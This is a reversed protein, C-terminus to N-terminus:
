KTVVNLVEHYEKAQSERSLPHLGQFYKNLKNKYFESESFAIFFDESTDSIISDSSYIHLLKGALTDRSINAIVPRGSGIYEFLKTPLIGQASLSESSSTESFLLYNSEHMRKLSDAYSLAPLFHFNSKINPYNRDLEIELLGAIGYFELQFRSFFSPLEIQLKSLAKLVNHPIRGPSISGMHCIIIKEGSADSANCRAQSMLGGDFGNYITSIKCNMKAYYIAMPESIVVLHDAKRALARDIYTELIKALGSGPVEHCQSFHDRYDLICKPGFRWKAFLAALLTPWPPSSGIVVDANKLVFKARPTLWPSLIAFAFPLRPDPIQGCIKYIKNKIKRRWSAGQVYMPEFKGKSPDSLKHKGLWNIEIVEINKPYSETFNGDLRSKSTTIVTVVNGLPVLYKVLAEVRKAGASNIPPFYHVFFVIKM